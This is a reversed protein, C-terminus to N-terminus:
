GSRNALPEPKASLLDVIIPYLEEASMEMPVPTEPFQSLDVDFL